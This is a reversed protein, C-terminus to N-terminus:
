HEFYDSIHYGCFSLMGMLDRHIEGRGVVDHWRRDAGREERIDRYSERRSRFRNGPLCVM